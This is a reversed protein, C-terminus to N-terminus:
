HARNSWDLTTAVSKFGFCVFTDLFVSRFGMCGNEDVHVIAAMILRVKSQPSSGFQNQLAALSSYRKIRQPDQHRGSLGPACIRSATASDPWTRVSVRLNSATFFILLEFAQGLSPHRDALLTSVGRGGGRAAGRWERQKDVEADGLGLCNKHPDGLPLQGDPAVTGEFDGVKFRYFYPAQPGCRRRPWAQARPAL